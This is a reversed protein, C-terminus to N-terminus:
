TKTQLSTQITTSYQGVTEIGNTTMQKALWKPSCKENCEKKSDNLRM